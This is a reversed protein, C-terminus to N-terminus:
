WSPRRSPGVSPLGAACRIPGGGVALAGFQAVAWRGDGVAGRGGGTGQARVRPMSPTPAVTFTGMRVGNAAHWGPCAHVVCM